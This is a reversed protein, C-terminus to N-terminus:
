TTLLRLGCKRRMIKSFLTVPSRLLIKHYDDTKLLYEGPLLPFPFHGFWFSYHSILNVLFIPIFAVLLGDLFEGTRSREFKKAPVLYSVVKDFILSPILLYIGAMISVAVAIM